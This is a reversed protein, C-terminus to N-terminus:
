DRRRSEGLTRRDAHAARRFADLQRGSKANWPFSRDGKVEQGAVHVEECTGNPEVRVSKREICRSAQEDSNSRRMANRRRASRAGIQVRPIEARRVRSSRSLGRVSKCEAPLSLTHRDIKGARGDTRGERARIPSSKQAVIEM